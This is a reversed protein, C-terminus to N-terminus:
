AAPVEQAPGAYRAVIRQVTTAPLGTTAAIQRVSWRMGHLRLVDGELRKRSQAASQEIASLPVAPAECLLRDGAVTWTPEGAIRCGDGAAMVDLAAAAEAILASRPRDTAQIPWVARYLYGTTTM